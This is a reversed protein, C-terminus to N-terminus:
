PRLAASIQDPTVGGEYGTVSVTMGPDFMKLAAM